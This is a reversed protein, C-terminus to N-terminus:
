MKTLLAVALLLFSLLHGFVLMKLNSLDEKLYRIQRKCKQLEISHISADQKDFMLHTYENKM